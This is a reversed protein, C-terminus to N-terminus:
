ESKRADFRILHLFRTYKHWQVCLARIIKMIKLYMKSNFLFLRYKICINKRLLKNLDIGEERILAIFHNYQDQLQTEGNLFEFLYLWEEIFKNALIIRYQRETSFNWCGLYAKLLTINKQSTRRSISTESDKYYYLTDALVAVSKVHNLYEEVFLLDEGFCIDEVFRIKYKDIINRIFMKNWLYGNISIDSLVISQMCKGSVIEEQTPALKEENGNISVKIYGCVILQSSGINIVLKELYDAAVIDDADIFCIYDGQSIDLGHNRASSPGRNKQSVLRIRDDVVARVCEVTRDHSGDDIVICEYNLYTQNIISMLTSQITKEANYAPIIISVKKENM